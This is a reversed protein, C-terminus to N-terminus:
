KGKIYDKLGRLFSRKSDMEEIEDKLVDRIVSPLLDLYDERLGSRRIKEAIKGMLDKDWKVGRLLNITKDEFTYVACEIDTRDLEIVSVPFIDETEIEENELDENSMILYFLSLIYIFSVGGIPRAGVV